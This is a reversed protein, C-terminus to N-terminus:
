EFSETYSTLRSFEFGSFIKALGVNHSQNFAALQSKPVIRWFNKAKLENYDNHDRVFRGYITDRRKFTIRVYENGTSTKNDLFKQIDIVNM